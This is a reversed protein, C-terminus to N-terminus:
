RRPPTPPPSARTPAADGGILSLKEARTLRKIRAEERLASSRDGVEVVAALEVPRRSSTYRSATGARHARLRNEVDTTWGCYLSDDVCRLLYVFPVGAGEVPRRAGRGSVSLSSLKGMTVTWCDGRVISWFRSSTAPM